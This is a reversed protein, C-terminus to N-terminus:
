ELYDFKGFVFLIGAIGGLLAILSLDSWFFATLQRLESDDTIYGSPLGRSHTPHAFYDRWIGLQREFSNVEPLTFELTQAAADYRNQKLLLATGETVTGSAIAGSPVDAPASRALYDRTDEVLYHLYAASFDPGLYSGDILILIVTHKWWPSLTEARSITTHM